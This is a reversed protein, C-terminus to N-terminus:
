DTTGTAKNKYSVFQGAVFATSSHKGIDYVPRGYADDAELGPCDYAASFKKM